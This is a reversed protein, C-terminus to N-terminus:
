LTITVIDQVVKRQRRRKCVILATAVVLFAAASSVAVVLLLALNFNSGPVFLVRGVDNQFFSYLDTFYPFLVCCFATFFLLDSFLLCFATFLTM